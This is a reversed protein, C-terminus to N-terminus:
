RGLEVPFPASVQGARGVAVYEAGGLDNADLVRRGDVVVLGPYEGTAILKGLAATEPANTTVICAEAGDLAAALSPAVRIPGHQV